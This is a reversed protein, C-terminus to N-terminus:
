FTFKMNENKDELRHRQTAATPKATTNAAHELVSTMLGASNAGL